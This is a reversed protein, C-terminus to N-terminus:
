YITLISTERLQKIRNKIYWAISLLVVPGHLAEVVPGHLAEVAPGHLADVVLCQLTGVVLCQHTEVVLCQHTEVVPGQLIGVVPGQLVVLDYPAIVPDAVCGRLDPAWTTLLGPLDLITPDFVLVLFNNFTKQRSYIFIFYSTKNLIWFLLHFQTKQWFVVNSAM